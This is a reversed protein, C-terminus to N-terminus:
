KKMFAFGATFALLVVAMLVPVYNIITRTQGTIENCSGEIYTANVTAGDYSADIQGTPSLLLGYLDTNVGCATFNGTLLESGGTGNEVTTLSAICESTVRVCSGNTATFQDDTITTRTQQSQIQTWAISLFIVGLILAIMIGVIAMQAKKQKM